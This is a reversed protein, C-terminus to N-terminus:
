GYIAGGFVAYQLVVNAPEADIDDIDLHQLWPLDTRAKKWAAVVDSVTVRKSIPPRRQWNDWTPLPANPDDITLTIDGPTDWSSGEQWVTPHWWPFDLGGAGIIQQWTENNTM